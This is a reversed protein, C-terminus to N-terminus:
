MKGANSSSDDERILRVSAANIEPAPSTVCLGHLHNINKIKSRLMQLLEVPIHGRVVCIVKNHEREDVILKSITISEPSERGKKIGLVYWFEHHTRTVVKIVGIKTKTMIDPLLQPIRFMSIVYDDESARVNGCTFGCNIPRNADLGSVHRTKSALPADTFKYMLQVTSNLTNTTQLVIDVEDVTAASGIQFM